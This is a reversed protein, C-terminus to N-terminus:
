HSKALHRGKVHNESFWNRSGRNRPSSRSKGSNERPGAQSKDDAVNGQGHVEGDGKAVLRLYGAAEEPTLPQSFYMRSSRTEMGTKSSLTLLFHNAFFNFM